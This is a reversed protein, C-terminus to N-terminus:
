WKGVEIDEVISVFDPVIDWLDASIEDKKFLSEVFAGCRNLYENLGAQLEQRMGERNGGMQVAFHLVNKLSQLEVNCIALKQKLRILLDDSIFAVQALIRM